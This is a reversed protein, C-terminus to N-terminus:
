KDEIVAEVDAGFEVLRGKNCGGVKGVAGIFVTQVGASLNGLRVKSKQGPALFPTRGMERRGEGGYVIYQVDSCQKAPATVKLYTVRTPQESLFYYYIQADCSTVNGTRTSTNSSGNILQALAADTMVSIFVVFGVLVSQWFFLDM